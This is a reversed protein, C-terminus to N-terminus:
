GVSQEPTDLLPDEDTSVADVTPADSEVEENEFEHPNLDAPEM